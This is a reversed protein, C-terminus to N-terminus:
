RPVLSNAAVTSWRRASLGCRGASTTVGGSLLRPRPRLSAGGGAASAARSSPRSIWWVASTLEGSDSSAIRAARGSATATQAKPWSILSGSSLSNGISFTCGDSIGRQRPAAGISRVSIAPSSTVPTVIM